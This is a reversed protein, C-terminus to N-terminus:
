AKGAKEHQPGPRVEFGDVPIGLGKAADRFATTMLDMFGQKVAPNIRAAGMAISGLLFAGKMTGTQAIYANWFEGEERFAIRVTMQQM